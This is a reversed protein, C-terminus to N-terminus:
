LYMCTSPYIVLSWSVKTAYRGQMVGRWWSMMRTLSVAASAPVLSVFALDGEVLGLWKEPPHRKAGAPLVSWPLFVAPNIPALMSLDFGFQSLSRIEHGLRKMLLDAM